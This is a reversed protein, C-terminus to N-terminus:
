GFVKWNRKIWNIRHIIRQDKSKNPSTRMNNKMPFKTSIIILQESKSFCFSLPISPFWCRTLTVLIMDFSLCNITILKSVVFNKISSKRVNKQTHTHKFHNPLYQGSLTFPLSCRRSISFKIQSKIHFHCTTSTFDILRELKSCLELYFSHIKYCHCHCHVVM